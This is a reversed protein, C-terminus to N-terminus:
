GGDREYATVAGARYPRPRARLRPGQAQDAHRSRAGRRGPRPLPLAPGYRNAPRPQLKRLLQSEDPYHVGFLANTEKVRDYRAPGGSRHAAPELTFRAKLRERLERLPLYSEVREIGIEGLPM